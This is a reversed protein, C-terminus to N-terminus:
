LDAIKKLLEKAGDIPADFLGALSDYEVEMENIDPIITADKYYLECRDRFKRAQKAISPPVTIAGDNRWKIARIFALNKGHGPRRQGGVVDYLDNKHLLSYGIVVQGDVIGAIIHGILKKNYITKGSRSRTKKFIKEHLVSQLEM